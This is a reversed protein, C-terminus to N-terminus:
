GSRTAIVAMWDGSQQVKSFGFGLAMYAEQVEPLREEMFGSLILRGSDNAARTLESALEIVIKSSINAFVLDFTGEPALDSPLSELRITARDGVGARNLNEVSAEIAENEVDLGVSSKAGCLLAAISLIGSGCGVDLVKEGGSVEDEIMQLCTRTTPHQGTGFAMGPELPIHIDGPGPKETSNAPAIFLRRGVRIPEFVQKRWDEEAVSRVQLEPLQYLYSILRLGVEIQNIRDDTSADNSLYCRVTVPADPDPTEGEDPNYGGREEIAVGGDAHRGFLAYLTKAYEGPADISLETWVTGPRPSKM